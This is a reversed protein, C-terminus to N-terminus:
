GPVLADVLERARVGVPRGRDYEREYARPHTQDGRM